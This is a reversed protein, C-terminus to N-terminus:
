LKDLELRKLLKQHEGSEKRKRVNEETTSMYDILVSCVYYNSLVKPIWGNLKTQCILTTKTTAGDSNPELRYAWYMDEAALSGPMSVFDKGKASVSLQWLTKGEVKYGSLDLGDRYYFPFGPANCWYAATVFPRSSSQRFSYTKLVKMLVVTADSEATQDFNFMSAVMDKPELQLTGELKFFGYGQGKATLEDHIYYKIGNKEGYPRYEERREESMLSKAQEQLWDLHSEATGEVGDWRIWRNEKLSEQLNENDDLWPTITGDGHTKQYAKGVATAHIEFDEGM